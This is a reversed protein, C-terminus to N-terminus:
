EITVGNDLKIHLDHWPSIEVSIVTDGVIQSNFKKMDFWEDNNTSEMQDCSQYYLTTVLIDNNKIVRSCGMAHFVLSGFGFDLIDAECCFYVLKKGILPHVFRIAKDDM